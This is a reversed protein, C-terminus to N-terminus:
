PLAHALQWLRVGVVLTAAVPVLVPRVHVRRWAGNPVLALLAPVVVLLVLELRWFGRVVGDYHLDACIWEAADTCRDLRTALLNSASFAATTAVLQVLWGGWAPAMRMRPPRPAPRPQGGAREVDPRVAGATRTTPPGYTASAM